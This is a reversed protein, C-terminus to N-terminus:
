LAAESIGMRERVETLTERAITRARRAGERLVEEVYGPKEVFERRRERFSELTKNIGDAMLQKDDVCGLQASICKEYVDDLRDPNFLKHLAYVNCIEPRGPDTRRLRQPDTFATKVRASTEEPTAALEIHNGLSKSMK